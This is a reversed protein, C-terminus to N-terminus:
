DYKRKGFWLDTFNFGLSLRFLNERLTNEDNGRRMFEVGLNVVSFQNQAQRNYNPIPLGLGASVGYVPLKNRLRIYDQGFFFGFRYSVLSFYNGKPRPIFQGGVNVQWNNITSDQRGFYRFNSWQSLALDAGVMWRRASDDGFVFGFRYSAPIQLSGDIDNREYVSDIQIIEGTSSTTFTQRLSDISGNIKQEWNGSVGLRLFRKGPMAIKYQLGTNFFISGFSSNTNHQSAYYYVTDNILARRTSIDKHGFLYGMNAGISLNKIAFGTGIYPLYSGGTGIFQTVASDIPLGTIPDMLRENRNVKYSVRSVPRIGLSMGWNKRLPLGIQLYSFFADTSNFTNPTNQQILKRNDINMGVDLIVRGSSLKKSNKEQTALFSAYSAPNYFNVSFYDTFAASIGGLARTTINSQSFQDGLAYRSYPSNDQAFAPQM